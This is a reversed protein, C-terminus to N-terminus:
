KLIATHLNVKSLIWKKTFIGYFTTAKNEIKITYRSKKRTKIYLAKKM